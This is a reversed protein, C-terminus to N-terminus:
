RAEGAIIVIYIANDGLTEHPGQAVGLGYHTSAAVATVTTISTGMGKFRRSLRSLGANVERVAGRESAGQAMADALQQALADLPEHPRIRAKSKAKTRAASWADIWAEIRQAVQARLAAADVRPTVRTLVQTVFMEQRGSVVEGFAIGIGIRTALPSLLNARHGPSNMLGEQAEVVGYARAVNELVLPTRLGAARIRDQAEGTTPSVHAVVGAQQMEASHARAVASVAPDLELAALGHRRRDRNVRVLMRAEAEAPTTV